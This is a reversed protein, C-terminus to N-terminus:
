LQRVEHSEETEHGDARGAARWARLLSDTRARLMRRPLARARATEEVADPLGLTARVACELAAQWAPAGLAAGQPRGCLWVREVQAGVDGLADLLRDTAERVIRAQVPTLRAAPDAVRALRGGQMALLPGKVGLRELCQAAELREGDTPGPETLLRTLMARARAGGARELARLAEGFAPTGSLRARLVWLAAECFPADSELREGLAGAGLRMQDALAQEWRAALAQPPGYLYPLREQPAPPNGDPLDRRERAYRYCAAYVPDRPFLRTLRGLLQTAEAARGTNMAAAAMTWLRDAGMPEEASLRTLEAYALGDQGIECATCAVLYREQGSLRGALARALTVWARGAAGAQAQALALTCLAQVSRPDLAMARRAARLARSADGAQMECHALLATAAAGGGCAAARALLARAREFRRGALATLGRRMLRSAYAGRAGAAQVGVMRVSGARRLGRACTHLVTGAVQAYRAGGASLCLAAADRAPGLEMYRMFNVAAEYAAAPDVREGQLLPVLVENARQPYDMESLVGAIEREVAADAGPRSRAVYLLTLAEELRGEERRRRAKRLLYPAPRDFQVIM